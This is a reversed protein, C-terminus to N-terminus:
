IKIMGAAATPRAAADLRDLWSLVSDATVTQIQNAFRQADPHDDFAVNASGVRGGLRALPGIRLTAPQYDKLKLWAQAQARQRLGPEAALALTEIAWQNSQQYRTGWAYSVISYRPQHLTLARGNDQLLQWLADQWARPAARWTAQYRWLDDLFFEGLGQRTVMSRDSGCQNLKHVVRWVGQPTRYAWGVHSWTQGYKTLDQGARALLVVRTGDQAYAADLAAATRQALAMGREIVQPTPKATECQRGAYAAGTALALGAALTTLLLARATLKQRILPM